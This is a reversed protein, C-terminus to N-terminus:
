AIDATEILKAAQRIATECDHGYHPRDSLIPSDDWSMSDAISKLKKVLLKIEQISMDTM